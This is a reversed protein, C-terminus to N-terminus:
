PDIFLKTSHVLILVAKWFQNNVMTQLPIEIMNLTNESGYPTVRLPIRRKPILESNISIM